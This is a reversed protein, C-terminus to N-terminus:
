RNVAQQHNCVGDPKVFFRLNNIHETRVNRDAPRELLHLTRQSTWVSYHRSPCNAASMGGGSDCNGCVLGSDVIGISQITLIVSEMESNDSHVAFIKGLKLGSLVL